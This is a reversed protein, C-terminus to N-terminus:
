NEGRYWQLDVADSYEDSFRKLIEDSKAIIIVLSSDWIVVEIEALSNQLRVNAEWLKSNGDACPLGHQLIDDISVDKSFASLVGWIFQISHKNVIDFLDKGDLWVYNYDINIKESPYTNCDYDTLLWNYNVYTGGLVNLIEKIDAIYGSKLDKIILGKM